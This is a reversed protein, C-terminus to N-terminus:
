DTLRQRKSYKIKSLFAYFDDIVDRNIDTENIVISQVNLTKTECIEAFKPTPILNLM